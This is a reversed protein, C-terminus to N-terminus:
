RLITFKNSGINLFCVGQISLLTHTDTGYLNIMNKM